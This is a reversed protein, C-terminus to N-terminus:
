SHRGERLVGAPLDVHRSRVYEGLGKAQQVRRNVQYTEGVTDLAATLVPM